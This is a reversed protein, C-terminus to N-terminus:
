SRGHSDRKLIVMYINYLELSRTVATIFPNKTRKIKYRIQKYVVKLVKRIKSVFKNEEIKLLYTFLIETFIKFVYYKKSFRM